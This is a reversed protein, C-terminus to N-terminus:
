NVLPYPPFFSGGSEMTWHDGCTVQWADMTWGDMGHPRTSNFIQVRGKHRALKDAAWAKASVPKNYAGADKKGKKRPKELSIFGPFVRRCRHFTATLCSKVQKDRLKGRTKIEFGHKKCELHHHFRCFWTVIAMHLNGLIPYGLENKTPFDM